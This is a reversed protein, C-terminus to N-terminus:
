KKYKKNFKRIKKKSQNDFRFNSLKEKGFQNESQWFPPSLRSQRKDRSLLNPNKELELTANGDIYKAHTITNAMYKHGKRATIYAPHNEGKSNKHLPNLDMRFENKRLNKKKGM